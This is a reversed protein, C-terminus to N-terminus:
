RDIDINYIIKRKLFYVRFYPIFTGFSRLNFIKNLLFMKFSKFKILFIIMKKNM